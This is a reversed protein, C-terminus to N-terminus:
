PAAPRHSLVSTLVHTVPDPDDEGDDHGSRQEERSGPPVQPQQAKGARGVLKRTQRGAAAGEEGIVVHEEGQGRDGAGGQEGPDQEHRRAYRREGGPQGPQQQEAPGRQVQDVDPLPDVQDRQPGIREARAELGHQEVPDEGRDAQDHDKRHENRGPPPGAQGVLDLVQRFEGGVRLGGPGLPYWHRLRRLEGRDPNGAQRGNRCRRPV